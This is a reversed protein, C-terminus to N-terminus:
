MDVIPLPAFSNYIILLLLGVNYGIFFLLMALGLFFAINGATRLPHRSREEDRRERSRRERGAIVVMYFRNMLIPVSLRIDVPHQGWQLGRSAEALASLQEETFGLRVHQPLRTLMARFLGNNKAAVKTLVTSESTITDM